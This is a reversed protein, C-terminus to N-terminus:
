DLEYGFPLTDITGDDGTYQIKRKTYVVQYNKIMMANILNCFKDRRIMDCNVPILMNNNHNYKEKIAKIVSHHNVALKASYHLNLGKVKIKYDYEDYNFEKYKVIDKAKSCWKFGKIIKGDLKYTYNKPGGSGFSGCMKFGDCEDTWGGLLDSRTLMKNCKEDNPNYKYIISDTDFYLVQENLYELGQYLRLRASSTTFAAIGINTNFDNPIYEEKLEYGVEMCDDNLQFPNVNTTKPNDLIKFLEAKSNIIVARSLNTRQGFKGWLSNLCLKAIARLGENYEINDIKNGDKDLIIVKEGKVLKFKWKDLEIGMVDKFSKIHADKMADYVEDSVKGEHKTICDPYGTAEEKIKLFKSVYGKFLEKSTSTYHIIEKIHTIVYGKDLAKYLENTAWTGEKSRLDFCLKDTKHCLVPHYLNKPCDVSCNIFGFYKRRKISSIVKRYNIQIYKADYVEPHGTPYEDYFQVTPYLSKIDDYFGEEGEKFHYLLKVANTRGGFFSPRIKVVIDNPLCGFKKEEFVVLNTEKQFKDKLLKRNDGCKEYELEDFLDIARQPFSKDIYYHRYITMCVSAITIYRLPDINAVGIFLKRFKLMGQQLINVDSICYKKMETQQNWRYNKLKNFSWWKLFHTMKEAKMNFPRFFEYPPMCSDYNWNDKTNFWHPFYGKALEDLGFIGPFSALPGAIFNMSDVFAINYKPISMWMIKSGAKILTPPDTSIINEIVWRLIFQFDYGKGNHAIFTSDKHEECFAWECFGNIDYHIIYDEPDDDFYASVSFMVEHYDGSIDAEFDFFIYKDSHPKLTMPMMYCKHDPMVDQKCNACNFQHCIHTDFRDEEDDVITQRCKKCKWIRECVSKVLNGSKTKTQELHNNYCLETAFFRFCNECEYAFKPREKKLACADFYDLSDCVKFCCVSCKFRCKHQGERRYFKKCAHCFNTKELFGSLQNNNICDYHQLDNNYLIYINHDKDVPNYDDEDVDPFIIRKGQLDIINLQFGYTEGLYLQFKSAESLGCPGIPVNSKKHLEIARLTQLERGKRISDWNRFSLNSVRDLKRNASVAFPKDLIMSLGVAIARAMCIDDDNNITIVSRKFFAYNDKSGTYGDNGMGTFNKISEIVFVTEDTIEWDADSTAIKEMLGFLIQPSFDKIRELPTSVSGGKSIDLNPDLLVIRIYDDGNLGEKKITKDLLELIMNDIDGVDLGNKFKLAFHNKEVGFKSKKTSSQKDSIIEYSPLKEKKIAIKEKIPKDVDPKLIQKRFNVSGVDDAFRYIQFDKIPNFTLKDFRNKITQSSTKLAKAVQSINGSVITKTNPNYAVYNKTSKVKVSQGLSKKILIKRQKSSYKDAILNINSLKIQKDTKPIPKKVSSKKQKKAADLLKQQQIKANKVTGAKKPM